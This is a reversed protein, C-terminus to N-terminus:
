IIEAISLMPLQIRVVTNPVYPIFTYTVYYYNDLSLYMSLSAAVTNVDNSFVYEQHDHLILPAGGLIPQGMLTISAYGALVGRPVGSPELDYSFRVDYIGARTLTTQSLAADWLSGQYYYPAGTTTVYELRGSLPIDIPPQNIEVSTVGIINFMPRGSDVAYQVEAQVSNAQTTLLLTNSVLGRIKPNQTTGDVVFISSSTAVTAPTADSVVTDAYTIEIDTASPIIGLRVNNSIISKFEHPYTNSVYIASTPEGINIGVVEPDTWSILLNDLGTTITIQNGASLSSFTTGNLIPSGTAGNTFRTAFTLVGATDTVSITPSTALTALTVVGPTKQVILSTNAGSDVVDYSLAIDNATKNILINPSSITSLTVLGPVKQSILSTNAGNDVVDYSFAINNATTSVLINPSSVTKFSVDGQQVQEILPIAGVPTGTANRIVLELDLNTATPNIDITASSLSKLASGDLLRFQTVDDGSATITQSISNLVLADGVETITVGTGAAIEKFGLVADKKATRVSFAAPTLPNLVPTNNPNGDVYDIDNVNLITKNKYCEM